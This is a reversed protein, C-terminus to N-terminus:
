INEAPFGNELAAKRVMKEMAPIETFYIRFFM